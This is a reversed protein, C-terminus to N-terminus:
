KFEWIIYEDVAQSKYLGRALLSMMFCVQIPPSVSVKVNPYMIKRRGSMSDEVRWVSYVIHRNSSEWLGTAQCVATTWQLDWVPM